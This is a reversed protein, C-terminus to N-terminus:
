FPWFVPILLSAAIWLLLNLPVGVRLYDAFRYGGQVYVMLNTHYGFPTALSSSAAFTVAMVFPRPDLGLEQAAAIGIPVLVVAAANHSMVSAFLTTLLYFMSLVAAPGWTQTVDLLASAILHATGTNEMAIGLPIVGALLFIVFWDIANYAEQLSLCHTVVMAICGVTAAVLISTVGTAALGVVAALIVAAYAAKGFRVEPLELTQLVLSYPKDALHDVSGRRGQLLLTDGIDLRIKGVKDRLTEGHKNVALAFVGSLHRFDAEQLTSGVLSSSPSVIGELLVTEASTLSQDAYKAEARIEVNEHRKMELIGDLAGRALLFDGAELKMDRLGTHIQTHGRIIELITVDYLQNLRAEAASRGVLPSHAPIDLGTLYRALEYKRTLSTAARDPLLRRGVFTLYLLGIAFFVAGLKTLEFMSFPALGHDTALSSVLINTSTGILTCTGGVISAFSLPMLLRSQSMGHERALALVVPLFIAVAATNNIFASVVGATAIIVVFFRTDSGGAVETLRRSLWGIAGTKTLGSSLIFMAGITLTAENSFGSFAEEASLFGVRFQGIVALTALILMAVLDVRVRESAFLAFAIVIVACVLGIDLM